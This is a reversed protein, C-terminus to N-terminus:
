AVSAMKAYEACMLDGLESAPRPPSFLYGQVETCGEARVRELQEPTEVGEATTAIGLSMGLGAVARIIAVCDPREALESVFSRDIKIKDFPFCRLYSLSSYGTGFDDMSISVGIERLQHLTALNAETEGLLVSETIELELRDPPLRSYALATLVAKVVGRSRFQAPSLNVAVKLRDPWHMAETCAKRLVWEGLPVILGIEEALPIFEAPAIMGREAHRWRLLAEFGSVANADLNILPQYYLEFEGNAFAKRLDLELMRRAQIRRDMEPEFFHAAGRGEAKARYLAMDANRLLVDAADGDDPALAIGISAGVVFEHGHVEYPKSVVEILATALTSAEHPGALPFQVVAFEDGGLRAVMDSGRLCKGLRQAVAKLLEDGIPHGLTDNVGKFHDLDLCHVALCEGHRRVRGLLEHLREHFLVRNPLDTLADHHAMHAIRAEALKRETVDVVAVLIAHKNAFPLRRAYTLVEIESGDAKIHRWTRDSQYKEGVSRAVERHLDWEDRPWLDLLSMGQMRARGYGYHALAADNVGLIRLDGPDYLWMPVPNGDFLLRFSAERRKLDGIDTLTMSLLDGVAAIGVNVHVELNNDNRTFAFEFQDFQGTGVGAILREIMSQASSGLPLESLRCWQLKIEDVGLLEAAGQNVAVIQFDVAAGTANRVAALAVIGENTSRFITDVLNYRTGAEGVYVGMLPPGWRCAMPFALMEYTEVMGEAVRYMRYPVPAGAEIARALVDDLAIACDRPLDKLRRDRLDSGLLEHVKRGARLVKFEPSSGGEFLILHDGLRGLSGLVVDEYQPLKKGLRVSGRWMREIVTKDELLPPCEVKQKRLSAIM